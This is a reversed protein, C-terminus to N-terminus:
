AGAPTRNWTFALRTYGSVAGDPEFRREAIEGRGDADVRVVTSCRTGYVPSRIFVASALREREADLGTSPLEDEPPRSEDALAAFLPELDEGGAALWAELAAKLKVTKPWPEDLGGNSLGYLGPELVRRVVEPRNAAFGARGDAVTILSFPNLRSLEAREPDAFEGAGTLVDEVLRGRSPRGEQPPGYGRLNTVVAMAGAENVGLWSGGSALDRGGLVQPAEPWRGLPASPRAHLEDRNGALVLPWRPNLRWAFALVCM